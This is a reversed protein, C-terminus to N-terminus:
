VAKPFVYAIMPGDPTFNVSRVRYGRKELWVRAAVRAEDQTSAKIGFTSVHEAGRERTTRPDNPRHAEFLKVKWDRLPKSM